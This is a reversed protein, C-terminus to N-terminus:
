ANANGLFNYLEGVVSSTETCVPSMSVREALCQSQTWPTLRVGKPYSEKSILTFWFFYPAVLDFQIWLAELVSTIKVAQRRRPLINKVRPSFPDLPTM